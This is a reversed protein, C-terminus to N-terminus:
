FRKGIENYYKKAGKHLPIGVKNLSNDINIYEGIKRTNILFKSEEQWLTKTLKYILDANVNKTTLWLAYASITKTEPISTYTLQKITAPSLYRGKKIIQQLQMKGISLLTYNSEQKLLEVLFPAPAGVSFFMADIKNNKIKQMAESVTLYETEMDDESIKYAELILRAEILTGSNRSSVSVRKGVLDSIDNIKADRRVLIHMMEPYLSAIARLDDQKKKNAFTETGTYAWYAIGSQVFGSQIKNAQLKKLNDVSGMSSVNLTQLGLIGCGGGKVCSLSNYPKSVVSGILDAFIFYNGGMAGSGISFLKTQQKPALKQNTQTSTKKTTVEKQITQSNSQFCLFVLLPVLTIIRINKM